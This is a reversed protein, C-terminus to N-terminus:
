YIISKYIKMLIESNRIADHRQKVIDVISLQKGKSEFISNIQSVLMEVDDFRYLNSEMGKMMDPSGGVFSAVTPTGLLQAEALSNSSNEISSPCIFVNANLYENKMQNADLNGLFKIKDDLQFRKILKGIFRGYGTTHVGRKSVDNGVVRLVADPYKKLLNDFARLMIHLGKIPYYCQSIFISHKQCYEYDWHGSYFEDRLTEDCHYYNIKPNIALAHARDWSTRGIIHNVSKIMEIEYSGRRLYDRKERIATGKVVDHITINRLVDIFSIGDLYHKGIESVLGQISIIVNRNGCARIFSLGHSFETGHIHIIDPKVDKKIEVWFKEYDNNIITNGRGYPILFFSIKDGQIRTLSNVDASIAAISLNINDDKILSNASGLLWGGSGKNQSTKGHLINIAEPFVINTIWLINM